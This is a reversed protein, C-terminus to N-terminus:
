STGPPVRCWVRVVFTDRVTWPTVDIRDVADMSRTPLRHLLHQEVFRRRSPESALRAMDRGRVVFTAMEFIELPEADVEPSPAAGSIEIEPADGALEATIASLTERGAPANGVVIEPASAMPAMPMASPTKAGPANSIRDAYPLTTQQPRPLSTALEEAIASLTERGAPAEGIVIEPADAQVLQEAIADYTARSAESYALTVEPSSPQPAAGKPGAKPRETPKRREPKKRAPLGCFYRM